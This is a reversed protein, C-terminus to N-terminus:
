CLGLAEALADRWQAPGDSVGGDASEVRLAGRDLLPDPRIDWNAAFDPDLEPIDMPHLYIAMDANRAGLMAAAKTCRQALLTHDLALPALTAECLLAVTGALERALQDTMDEDLKRLASGLRRREAVLEAAAVAADARGQALGEAYALAQEDPADDAFPPLPAEPAADRPSYFPDAVFGSASGLLAIWGAPASADDDGRFAPKFM